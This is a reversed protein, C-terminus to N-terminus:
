ATALVVLRPRHVSPVGGDRATFRVNTFGAAMIWERFETITPLRISHHSRRVAGDRVVLRETEIRGEVSDFESTDVMIDDGVRVTHGFPAATFRRVFEDRHQTEILLRGGPRLVRRFEALVARNDDDDFYGFSTFRNVAADFPGDVPLDRLDGHVHEATTRAGRAIELFQESVDVGVVAMESEALLNSIRGHGCPADLVSDGPCLELIRVIDDVDARNREDTLHSAYFHLYDDSFTEEFDFRMRGDQRSGAPGQCAGGEAGNGGALREERLDSGAVRLRQAGRQGGAVLGNSCLHEDSPSRARFRATRM